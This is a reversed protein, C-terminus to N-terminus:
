EILIVELQRAITRFAEVLQQNNEAHLHTGGTIAAVEEMLAEDAGVSFTITHVVVNERACERAVEVPNVGRNQRGDTMVIMSRLALRRRTPDNLLSDLGVRMARGIGTFGAPEVGDLATRLSPLDETLDLLKEANTDYVTLSVNERPATAELEEIFVDVGNLLSPFRGENAMSGSKDLVLAVDRDLRTATASQVPEFSNVGFLGGFILNIQGSPSTSTREGLVQVSNAFVTGDSSDFDAQNVFSFSGDPNQEAAGLIIKSPDLELPEGAVFNARAINLAADIADAESGGRGLAEVGARAAADTATRLESRVVHIRSIDIAIVASVFLFSILVAILPLMAGARESNRHFAQCRMKKNTKLTM